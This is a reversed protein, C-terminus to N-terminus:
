AAALVPFEFQFKKQVLRYNLCAHSNFQFILGNKFDFKLGLLSKRNLQWGPGLVGVGVVQRAAEPDHPPAVFDEPLPKM